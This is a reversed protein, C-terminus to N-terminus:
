GTEDRRKLGSIAGLVEATAALVKLAIFRGFCSAAVCVPALIWVSICVNVCVNAMLAARSLSVTGLIVRPTSLRIPLSSHFLLFTTVSPKKRGHLQGIEECCQGEVRSGGRRIM